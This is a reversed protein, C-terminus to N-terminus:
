TELYSDPRSRILKSLARPLGIGVQGLNGHCAAWHRATLQEGDQGAAVPGLALILVVL